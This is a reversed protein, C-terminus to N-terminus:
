LSNYGVGMPGIERDYWDDWSEQPKYKVKYRQSIEKVLEKGNIIGAKKFETMYVPVIQEPHDKTIKINVFRDRKIEETSEQVLIRIFMETKSFEWERKVV